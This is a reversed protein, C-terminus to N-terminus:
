PGLDTAAPDLDADGAFADLGGLAKAPVAPDDLCAQRPEEVVASEYAAVVAFGLM